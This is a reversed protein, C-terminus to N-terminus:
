CLRRSHACFLSSLEPCRSSVPDLLFQRLPESRPLCPDRTTQSASSSRLPRRVLGALALVIIVIFVPHLFEPVVQATANASIANSYIGDGDWRARLMYTSLSPPLWGCSFRGDAGTAVWAVFSWDVNDLSYEIKVTRGELPYYGNAVLLGDITANEGRTINVTNPSVEIRLETPVPESGHVAIVRTSHGYSVHIFYYTSNVRSWAYAAVTGDVSVAPFGSILTADFTANIFGRTGEPGGVTFNMMQRKADYDFASSGKPDYTSSNTLVELHYWNGKFETDVLWEIDLTVMSIQILPGSKAVLKISYSGQWNDPCCFSGGSFKLSVVGDNSPSTRILSPELMASVATPYGAAILSVVGEFGGVSSITLNYSAVADFGYLKARTPSASVAFSASTQTPLWVVRTYPGPKTIVRTESGISISVQRSTADIVFAGNVNARLTGNTTISTSVPDGYSNLSVGFICDCRGYGPAWGLNYVSQRIGYTVGVVTQSGYNASVVIKYAGDSLSPIQITCVGTNGTNFKTEFVATGLADIVKLNADLYPVNKGLTPDIVFAEVSWISPGGPIHHDAIVGVRPVIPSGLTGSGLYTIAQKDIWEEVAIGDVSAGGAIRGIISLFRARDFSPGYPYYPYTNATSYLAENLKPLFGDAVTNLIFFFAAGEGYDGFGRVTTDEYLYTDRDLYNTTDYQSLYSALERHGDGLTPYSRKGSEVLRQVVLSQVLTAMGEEAWPSPISIGCHFVHALEHIFTSDWLYETATNHEVPLISMHVIPPQECLADPLSGPLYGLIVASTQAPAGYVAVLEPYALDFVAQAYSRDEIPFSDSFVLTLVGGGLSGSNISSLRTLGDVAHGKALSAPPRADPGAVEASHAKPAPGAVVPLTLLFISLLLVSTKRTLPPKLSSSM